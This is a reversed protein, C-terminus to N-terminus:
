ISAPASIHRLRLEKTAAAPASPMPMTAAALSGSDVVGDAPAIRDLKALWEEALPHDITLLLERAADYEKDYILGRAAIFQAKSM